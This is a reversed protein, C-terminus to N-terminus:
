GGGPGMPFGMQALIHPPPILPPLGMQALLQAFAAQEPGLPTPNQASYTGPPFLSAFSGPTSHSYAPCHHDIAGQCDRVCPGSDHAGFHLLWKRPFGSTVCVTLARGSESWVVHHVGPSAADATSHLTYAWVLAGGKHGDLLHLRSDGGSGPSICALWRGQLAPLPKTDATGTIIHHHAFCGHSASRQKSM